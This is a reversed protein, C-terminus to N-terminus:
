IFLEFENKQTEKIIKTKIAEKNKSLKWVAVPISIAILLKLFNNMTKGLKFESICYVFLM